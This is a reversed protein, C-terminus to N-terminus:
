RRFGRGMAIPLGTEPDRLVIQLGSAVDTVTLAVWHEVGDVTVPAAKVEVQAGATPIYGAQLLARYPSLLISMDGGSITLILTPYGAGAGGAFSKVVGSYTAAEALDPGGGDCLHRGGQRMTGGGPGKGVGQGGTAGTATGNGAGTTGAGLHRRVGSGKAGIWVPTGDLNRLVLTRDRTVNKVQTVAM